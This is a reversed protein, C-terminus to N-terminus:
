APCSNWCCCGRKAAQFTESQGSGLGVKLLVQMSEKEKDMKM